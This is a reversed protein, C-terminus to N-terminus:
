RCYIIAASPCPTLEHRVPHKQLGVLVDLEPTAEFTAAPAVAMGTALTTLFLLPWRRLEKM